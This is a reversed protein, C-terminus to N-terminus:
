MPGDDLGKFSQNRGFVVGRIHQKQGDRRVADIDIHMRRLGLDFKLILPGDVGNHATGHLTGQADVLNRGCEIKLGVQTVMHIQIRIMGRRRGLDLHVGAVIGESRVTRPEAMLGGRPLGEVEKSRWAADWVILTFEGPFSRRQFAARGGTGSFTKAQGERGM